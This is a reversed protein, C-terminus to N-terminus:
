KSQQELSKLWREREAPDDPEFKVIIEVGDFESKQLTILSKNSVTIQLKMPSLWRIVPRYKPYGADIAFITDEQKAQEGRRVIHVADTLTTMDFAQTSCMTEQVLAVRGNDPSLMISVTETACQAKASDISITGTISFLLATSLARLSVDIWQM